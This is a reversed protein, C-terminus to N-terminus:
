DFRLIKLEPCAKYIEYVNFATVTGNLLPAYARRDFVVHVSELGGVRAILIDGPQHFNKQVEYANLQEWMGAELSWQKSFSLAEKQTRYTFDPKQTDQGIMAEIAGIAYTVCDRVGWEFPLGLSANIYRTLAQHHNQIKM